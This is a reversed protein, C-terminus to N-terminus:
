SAREDHKRCRSCVKIRPWWAAVRDAEARSDAVFGSRSIDAGCEALGTRIFSESAKHYTGTHRGRTVRRYWSRMNRSPENRPYCPSAPDARRFRSDHASM